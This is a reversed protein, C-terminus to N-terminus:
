IRPELRENRELCLPRKLAFKTRFNKTGFLLKSLVIIVAMRLLLEVALVAATSESFLVNKVTMESQVGYTQRQLDFMEFNSMEFNNM